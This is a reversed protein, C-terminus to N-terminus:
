NKREQASPERFFNFALKFIGELSLLPLQRECFIMNYITRGQLFKTTKKTNIPKNRHNGNHESPLPMSNDKGPILSYRFHTLTCVYLHM